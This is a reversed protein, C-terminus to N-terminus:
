ARALDIESAVEAWFAFRRRSRARRARRQEKLAIKRADVDGHQARLLAVASAVKMFHSATRVEAPRVGGNGTERGKM